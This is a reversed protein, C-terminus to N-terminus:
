AYADVSLMCQSVWRLRKFAAATVCHKSEDHSLSASPAVKFACYIIKLIDRCSTQDLETEEVRIFSSTAHSEQGECRCPWNYKLMHM